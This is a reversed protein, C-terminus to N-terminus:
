EEYKKYIVDADYYDKEYNLIIDEAAELSLVEVTGDEIQLARADRFLKEIIFEKSLGYAGFIQLADNAVEFAIRKAYIQALRAHRPSADFTKQELTKKHTYEIAKRVYYRATEVKEFMEYLKLKINKHKVLPVGGQVRERAYNLAEEFAARALGVSFAGMACSTLCLVQDCFVGYFPTPAVIVYHDPIRVDDFFLEGQPCDRMGLMDVPKGRRVGEANLPVVCFLGNVLSKAGKVQAHLGCHTAVPAASVWASKQGSIVWEDGDKEAVVNGKGYKLHDEDRLVMLYDSGHEPETVGWCGRYEGKTDEMWPKVLEEKIEDSGFLAACTFPIMDVGIATALGLSGWGLEEMVIYRQLPTLDPGGLDPPVHLKHYGLEKMKKIVKFFPSDSKIREEPPMRDLEISAPRMVEKAFRHVEERLLKDEESLEDLDLFKM